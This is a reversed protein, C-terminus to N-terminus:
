EGDASVKLFVRRDVCFADISSQEGLCFSGTSLHPLLRLDRCLVMVVGVVGLNVPM